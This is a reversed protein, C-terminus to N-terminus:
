RPAVFVSGPGRRDALSAIAMTSEGDRIIIEGQCGSPGASGARVPALQLVHPGAPLDVRFVQVSGPLLSWCRLDAQETAEWAVGAASYLLSTWDQGAHKEAGAASKGVVILSKKVIRRAVARGVLQPLLERQREVALRGLDAINETDGITQGDINVRLTEFTLPALEIRAIKIPAITPPLTYKGTASLIQDAILLSQSSVPETATVKHPGRGVLAFLYLSGSGPPPKDGLRARELERAIFPSGPRWSNATQLNRIVEDPNLASQGRIIARLLPAVALEFRVPDIVPVPIEPAAAPAPTGAMESVTPQAADIPAAVPPPRRHLLEECQDGIQHAYAVADGDGRLLSNFALMVRLLIQEHDELQYPRTTEDTLMSVAQGATQGGPSVDGRDRVEKLLTQSSAFDGRQFEVVAQDLQLVALDNRPREAARQLEAAARDWDGDWYSSRATELLQRHSQCGIVAPFLAALGTACLIWQFRHRELSASRQRSSATWQGRGM